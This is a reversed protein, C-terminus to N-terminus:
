RSKLKLAADLIEQGFISRVVDVSEKEDLWRRASLVRGNRNWMPDRAELKAFDQAFWQEDTGDFEDDITTQRVIEERSVKPGRAVAHSLRSLFRTM